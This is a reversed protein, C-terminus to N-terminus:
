VAGACRGFRWAVRLRGRAVRADGQGWAKTVEAAEEQM